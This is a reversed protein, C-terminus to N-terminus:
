ELRLAEAPDIRVVRRLPWAAAAGASALLVVAAGGFVWPDAPAVGPLRHVVLRSAVLALPLAALLGLGCLTAVERLVLGAVRHRPAGLALRLGLERTRRTVSYSLAGFLGVIALMTAMLGFTSALGAAVRETALSRDRQEALTRVAHIPLTPDVAAVARRVLQTVADAELGSRVYGHMGAATFFQAYPVFVQAPPQGRLTEYHSDAVVGVIRTPQNAGDLLVIVRGIVPGSVVHQRLFAQNVVAVRPSHADDGPRLDRGERLTIGLTRFYDASVANVSPPPTSATPAPRGEVAVGIAWVDVTALLRVLGIASSEVGPSADIEAKVRAYVDEVRARPYGNLTPDLGFTVVNTTDFGAPVARLQALSRVFVGSAFVLLLSLAIEAAVFAQRVRGRPLVRSSTQAVLQSLDRGTALWAPLVGAVLAVIALLAAALAVVRGSLATSVNSVGDTVPLFPVVADAALPALWVGAAGGVVILLLSEVMLERVLRWRSAGLSVRVALEGRREVGRGIFLGAVNVATLLLLLAALASMARLPLSWDRRLYSTGAAGPEVALASRRFLERDAAPSGAFAGDIARATWGRYFPELAAAAQGPTVGPRLRAFVQVWRTNQGELSIWGFPAVAPAMTIPIRVDPHFDLELGTFRAESVGIISLRQGNVSLTRGVVDRDGGFARQWYAHSLVAVPGSGPALDDRPGITRGVTASIGLLEFFRGSVLEATIRESGSGVAANAPFRFHALVDSVPSDASVSRESLERFFPYSWRDPGVAGGPPTGAPTLLVLSAPDRVPLSRLLVADVLGVMATTLGVGLTLSLLALTTFSPTRALQRAARCVSTFAQRGLEM